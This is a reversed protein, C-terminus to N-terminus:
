STASGLTTALPSWAPALPSTPTTPTTPSSPAASDGGSSSGGDSSGGGNGSPVPVVGADITLNAYSAKWFSGATTDGTASAAVTFVPTTGVLPDAGPSPNSDNASTGAGTSTFVYGSPLTFQAKYDGPLLNGIFYEGNADTTVPAVANGQADTAPSLVTMPPTQGQGQGPNYSLDSLTGNPPQAKV